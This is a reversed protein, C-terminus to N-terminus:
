EQAFLLTMPDFLQFLNSVRWVCYNYRESDTSQVTYYAMSDFSAGSPGLRTEFHLHPNTSYGTNGVAGILQDCKVDDGVSLTVPNLLHGYLLYLSQKENDISFSLEGTPCNVRPDPMVTPQAATIQIQAKLETSISNLPTEIIVANGYPWRDYLITVVKGELAAFVQLGEIGVRENRRYFSFDVGQHGDDNGPRPTKFPQTMIESISKLTEGELPSCVTQILEPTPTPPIPTSSPQITQTSTATKTPSPTIGSQSVIAEQQPSCAAIFLIIFFLSLNKCM